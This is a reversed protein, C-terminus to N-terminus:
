ESRLVIRDDGYEARVPFGQELLRVFGEANSWRFSGGIRLAGAAADGIVIRRANYRNFEDAADALTTDRFALMGDQWGVLREAAEVPGAQVLVGDATALAVSGAPLLSMPRQGGAAPRSELRVSGETVVVRLDPGDRRVSFRTGVAVVRREGALVVFPRRPDRAAEFFAEGRQLDIRREARSLRVDIRSDSGLVTRSGDALPLTRIHGLPTSHSAADLPAHRWATSSAVVVLFAGAAVAAFTRARGRRPAPRPRRSFVLRAADELGAPAPLAPRLSAGPHIMAGGDWQGRAPVGPPLGAALAQLRGCAEWASQLRLFAVRHAPAAELWAALADADGESWDGADRRALWESARQEIGRSDGPPTDTPAREDM